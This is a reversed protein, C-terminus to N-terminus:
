NLFVGVLYLELTVVVLVLNLGISKTTEHFPLSSLWTLASLLFECYYGNDNVRTPTKM